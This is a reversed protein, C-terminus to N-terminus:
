KKMIKKLKLLRLLKKPTTEIVEFQYTRNVDRDFGPEFLGDNLYVVVKDVSKRNKWIEALKIDKTSHFRYGLDYRILEKVYFEENKPTLYKIVYTRKLVM